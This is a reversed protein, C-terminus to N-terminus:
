ILKDINSKTKYNSKCVYCYNTLSNILAREM